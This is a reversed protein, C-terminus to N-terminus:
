SVYDMTWYVYDMLLIDVDLNGTSNYISPDFEFRQTDQWVRQLRYRFTERRTDDLFDITLLEAAQEINKPVYTWGWDGTIAVTSNNPFVAPTTDETAAMRVFHRSEPDLEVSATYDVSDILVSTINAIRPRIYLNSRGNGDLSLVKNFVPAFTQGCYTDIVRRANKEAITFKDGQYEPIDFEPYNVAFETQTIYPSEVSFNTMTYFPQANITATWKIRYTGVANVSEDPIAVKYTSGTVLTASTEAVVVDGWEYWVTAKPTDSPADPFTFSEEIDSYLSYTKM